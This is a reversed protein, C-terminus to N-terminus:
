YICILRFRIKFAGEQINLQCIDFCVWSLFALTDQLATLVNESKIESFYLPYTRSKTKKINYHVYFTTSDVTYNAIQPKPHVFENRCKIVDNVRAYKVDGQDLSRGSYDCFLKFKDLTKKRELKEYILKDLDLSLLLANAAAELSNAIMLFSYRCFIEAIIMSQDSGIDQSVQKAKKSFFLGHRLSYIAELIYEHYTSISTHFMENM